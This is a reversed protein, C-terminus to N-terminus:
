ARGPRSAPPWTGPCSPRPGGDRRSGPPRSRRRGELRDLVVTTCTMSWAGRGPERPVVTAKTWGFPANPVRISSTSSYGATVHVSRRAAGVSSGVPGTGAVPRRDADGLMGRRVPGPDALGHRDRRHRDRGIARGARARDWGAARRAEPAAAPLRVVRRAPPEGARRRSRLREGGPTRALSLGVDVEEDVGPGAAGEVDPPAPVVAAEVMDRGARSPPAVRSAPAPHRRRGAERDEVPDSSTSADPRGTRM